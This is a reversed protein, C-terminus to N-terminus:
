RGSTSPILTENEVRCWRLHMFGQAVSLLPSMQNGPIVTSREREREWVREVESVCSSYGPVLCSPLETWLQLFIPDNAQGFLGYFVNYCNTRFASRPALKASFSSSALSWRQVADHDFYVPLIFHKLPNGQYGRLYTWWGDWFNLYPHFLFLSKEDDLLGPFLQLSNLILLIYTHTQAHTADNLRRSVCLCVCM